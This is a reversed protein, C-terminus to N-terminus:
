RWSSFSRKPLDNGSELNDVYREGIEKVYRALQRPKGDNELGPNRINLAARGTDEISFGESFGRIKSHSIINTGNSNNGGTIDNDSVAEINWNQQKAKEAMFNAGLLGQEEDSVAVSIITAPSSYKSMIRACEMVTAVGSADDNAGPADGPRDMVNSRRNDLHGCIIFIRHDAPDVGNLTAVVNGLPLPIDVLHGDPLLTVTDIIATLRSNSKEAFENFRTLVWNRAAGIGNKPDTQTSLTHRTGFGASKQIYPELSDKSVGTVMKEIQPDLYIKTQAFSPLISFILKLLLFSKKM